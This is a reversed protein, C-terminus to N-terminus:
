SWLDTLFGSVFRPMAPELDAPSRVIRIDVFEPRQERDLHRMIRARLADANEAAALVKLFALYCRDRVMTWGPEARLEGIGIGTEELLERGLNAALDLRGADLDAPEPTGCPFTVLGANATSSAMEGVLFAGDASRLAAPAFVNYVGSDPFGWDRWSCFSAFDTEFCCGRLTRGEIAYGNLLLVRGNWVDSRKRRLEAFYTEIERHRDAAFQWPRPEFVIEIRDLAAIETDPASSVTVISRRRERTV